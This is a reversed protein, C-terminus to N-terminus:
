RPLRGQCALCAVTIPAFTYLAHTYILGEVWLSFASLCRPTTPLTSARLAHQRPNSEPRSRPNPNRFGLGLGLKAFRTVAFGSIFWWNNDYNLGALHAMYKTGMRRNQCVLHRQVRFLGSRRVVNYNGPQTGLYCSQRGNQSLRKISM